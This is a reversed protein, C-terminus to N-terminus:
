CWAHRYIYLQLMYKNVGMFFHWKMISKESPLNNMEEPVRKPTQISSSSSPKARGQTHHSPSPLALLLFCLMPILKPFKKRERERPKRRRKPNRSKLIWVNTERVRTMAQSSSAAAAAAAEAM